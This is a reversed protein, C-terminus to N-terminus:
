KSLQITYEALDEIQKETLTNRFSTMINRGETIVLIREDRNLVSYRLDVAGNTKLSGDIGHCNVCYIKFLDSTTQKEATNSYQCAIMIVLLFFCVLIVSFRMFRLFKM